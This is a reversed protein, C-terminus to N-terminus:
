VDSGAALALSGEAILAGAASEELKFRLRTGELRLRATAQVGPLLPAHFKVQTIHRLPLSRGLWDEAASVILDLLLVGPAVPAGPFHGALAAHDAPLGFTVSHELSTM